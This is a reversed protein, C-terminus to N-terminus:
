HGDLNMLQAEPSVFGDTVKAMWGFIAYEHIWPCEDCRSAVQATFEFVEKKDRSISAIESVVVPYQPYKQYRRETLAQGFDSCSHVSM